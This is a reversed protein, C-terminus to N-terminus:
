RVMQYIFTFEVRASNPWTGNLLLKGQQLETLSGAGLTGMRNGDHGEFLNCSLAQIAQIIKIGTVGFEPALRGVHWVSKPGGCEHKNDQLGGWIGTVYNHVNAYDCIAHWRAHRNDRRGPNDSIASRRKSKRV